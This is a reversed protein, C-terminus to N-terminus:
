SPMKHRSRPREASVETPLVLVMTAYRTRDHGSSMSLTQLNKMGSAALVTLGLLEWDHWRPLRHIIYGKAILSKPDSGKCETWQGGKCSVARYTFAAFRLRVNHVFRLQPATPRPGETDSLVLTMSYALLTHGIVYALRM